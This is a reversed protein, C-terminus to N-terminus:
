GGIRLPALREAGRAAIGVVTSALSAEAGGSVHARLALLQGEILRQDNGPRIEVAERHSLGIAGGLGYDLVTDHVTPPLAELAAAAV